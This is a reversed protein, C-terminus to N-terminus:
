LASWSQTTHRAPRLTLWIVQDKTLNQLDSVHQAVGGGSAHVVALSVRKQSRRIRHATVAIRYASAPDAQVHRHVLHPYPSAKRDLRANGGSTAFLCKWFERRRCSVRVRRLGTKHTWGRVAARMCFDNEEGYGLGFAEEDFFGTELLCARRIYMCFGVATPIEVTRSRNVLQFASDLAALDMSPPLINDTCPVPYSCITANNSFPTVTGTRDDARACTALRDLWNGFVLTDSNL